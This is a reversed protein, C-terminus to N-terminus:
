LNDDIETKPQLGRGEILTPAFSDLIQKCFLSVFCHSLFAIQNKFFQIM